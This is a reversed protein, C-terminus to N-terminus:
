EGQRPYESTARRPMVSLPWPPRDTKIRWDQDGKADFLVLGIMRNAKLGAFLDAIKVAKGAQPAVGTEAILIPAYTM